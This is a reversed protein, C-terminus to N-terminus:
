PGIDGTPSSSRSSSPSTARWPANTSRLTGGAVTHTYRRLRALDIVGFPLLAVGSGTQRLARHWDPREPLGTAWGAQDGISLGFHLRLANQPDFDMVLVRRGARSLNHAINAALTTKGVGGKPSAM